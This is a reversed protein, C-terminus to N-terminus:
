YAAIDGPKCSYAFVVLDGSAPQYNASSAGAGMPATGNVLYLWGGNKNECIKESLGGISYVYGGREVILIGNEQLARKFITLVSEGPTFPYRDIQLMVGNAPIIKDYGPWARIGYDVATRCDVKLNLWPGTPQTTPPPATTATQKVGQTSLAVSSTNSSQATDPQSATASAISGQSAAERNTSNHTTGSQSASQTGSGVPVQVTQTESQTGGSSGAATTTETTVAPSLCASFAILVTCLMSICVYPFARNKHM